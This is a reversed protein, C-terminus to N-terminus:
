PGKTGSFQRVATASQTGDPLSATVLFEWGDSVGGSAGSMGGSMGDLRGQKRRAGVGDQLGNTSGMVIVAKHVPVVMGELVRGVEVDCRVGLVRGLRFMRENLQWPLGIAGDKVLDADVEPGMAGSLYRHKQGDSLYGQRWLLEMADGVQPNWRWGARGQIALLGEALASGEEPGFAPGVSKELEVGWLRRGVEWVAAHRRKALDEGLMQTLERASALGGVTEEVEVATVGLNQTGDMGGGARTSAAGQAGRVLVDPTKVPAVSGIMCGLWLVGGPYRTEAVVPTARVVLKYRGPEGRLGDALRSGDVGDLRSLMTLFASRGLPYEPAWGGLYIEEDGIRLYVDGAVAVPAARRQLGGTAQLLAEVGGVEERVLMNGDRFVQLRVSGFAGVAFEDEAVSEGANVLGIAWGAVWEVDQTVTAVVSRAVSGDPRMLQLDVQYELTRKGPETQWEYPTVASTRHGSGDFSGQWRAQPRRDVGAGYGLVPSSVRRIDYLIKYRSRRGFRGQALELDLRVSAGVRVKAPGVLRVPLPEILAKEYRDRQRASMLGGAEAASLVGAAERVGPKGVLLSGVGWGEPELSEWLPLLHEVIARTASDPKGAAAAVGIRREAEAYGQRAVVPDAWGMEWIVYSVPMYQRWNVNKM